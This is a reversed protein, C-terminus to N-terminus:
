NYWFVVIEDKKVPADMFTLSKEITPVNPIGILPKQEKTKSYHINHNIIDKYCNHIRWKYDTESYKALRIAQRYKKKIYNQDTKNHINNLERDM